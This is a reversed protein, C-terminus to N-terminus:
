GGPKALLAEIIEPIHRPRIPKSICADMGAELCNEMDSKTDSGTLAVIPIHTLSTKERERIAATAELGDIEPMLVDMLILDLTEKEFAEIADKGNQAVVVTYGEKELLTTALRQNVPSDDAVLITFGNDTSREEGASRSVTHQLGGPYVPPSESENEPLDVSLRQDKQEYGMKLELNRKELEGKTVSLERNVQDLEQNKQVTNEYISFLLDVLQLRNPIILHRKGAFFIEIEGGSEGGKRLERSTLLSHIRSILFEEGYTTSVLNDVGSRLAEVIDEPDSLASLLIVPIDKLHDQAKIHRCLDYGNMGPMITDSIVLMPSHKELHTLAGISNHAVTVHYNHKSLIIQLKLAQTPSEGVVLIHVDQSM